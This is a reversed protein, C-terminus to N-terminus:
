PWPAFLNKVGVQFAVAVVVASLLCEGADDATEYVLVSERHGILSGM